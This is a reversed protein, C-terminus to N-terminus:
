SSLKPNLGYVRFKPKSYNAADLWTVFGRTFDGRATFITASLAIILQLSQAVIVKATAQNAFMLVQMPEANSSPWSHVLLDTHGLSLHWEVNDILTM